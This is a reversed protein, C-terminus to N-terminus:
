SSVSTYSPIEDINIYDTPVNGKFKSYNDFEPRLLQSHPTHNHVHRAIMKYLKFEPYRDDGNNKYLVNVGKDDLCWEVIIKNIPDEMIEPNKLDSIDDILYDFISCALRCLDFSYNPEIRPKKDNFYPETNYQTAADGGFNFSDSCFIKGEYKFISRGFDIIKYIRGFTPVKYYKNKYLYYIFKKDTKNYMINNTHLDNHTFQFAKQYVILIMIVQMLASLWEETSLKDDLILNDLTDDCCEMSIVQVPFKPITVNLVEDEDEEDDEDSSGDEEDSSGDRSKNNLEGDEADVLQPVEEEESEGNGAEDTHSSRSSCSSSSSNLSMEDDDKDNLTQFTKLNDCTFATDNDALEELEIFDENGATEVSREFIDEFLEENICEASLQSNITVNHKIELPKLTPTANNFLHEYNDIHFLQNKNENFFTSNSLYEIDDYVNVKFDNKIGLFSGYYEVGHTFGHAHNLASTLYLFLGDVYAANNTDLVKENCTEKTSNLDPLQFLTSNHIDYKGILYKYTDLLPAIKFFISKEKAKNTNINKVKCDFLYLDEDIREKVSTLYWLNNLNICNFNTSNLSFFKTYIPIYNQPKSLFLLESDELSKFLETNKRKQYNINM